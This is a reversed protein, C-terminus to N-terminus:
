GVRVPAGCGAAWAGVVAGEGTEPAAPCRVGPAVPEAEPCATGVGGAAEELTWALLAACGPAGAEAGAAEACPM